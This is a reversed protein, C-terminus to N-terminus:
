RAHGAFAFFDLHQRALDISRPFSGTGCGVENHNHLDGRYLQYKAGHDDQTLSRVPLGILMSAALSGGVFQRRTLKHESM